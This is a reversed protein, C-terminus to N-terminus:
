GSYYTGEGAAWFVSDFFLYFAGSVHWFNFISSGDRALEMRGGAYEGFANPWSEAPLLFTSRMAPRINPPLTRLVQVNAPPVSDPFGNVDNKIAGRLHVLGRNDLMISFPWEPSNVNNAGLICSSPVAKWPGAATEIPRWIIGWDTDNVVCLYHGVGDVYFLDGVSASVPLSVGNPPTVYDRIAKFNDNINKKVDSMLDSGFPRFLNLNPTNDGM